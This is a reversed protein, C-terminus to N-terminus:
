AAKRRQFGLGALALGMLTLTTPEPVASATAFTLDNTDQWTSGFPSGGIGKATCPTGFGCFQSLTETYAFHPGSFNPNPLGLDLGVLTRFEDALTADDWWPQSEITALDINLQSTVEFAGISTGILVAYATGSGTLLSCFLFMRGIRGSSGFTINVM